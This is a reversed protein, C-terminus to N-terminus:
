RLAVKRRMLLPSFEELCQQAAERLPSLTSPYPKRQVRLALRSYRQSPVNRMWDPLISTFVPFAEQPIPNRPHRKKGPQADRGAPAHRSTPTLLEPPKSKPPTKRGGWKISGLLKSSIPLLRILSVNKGHLGGDRFRFLSLYIPPTRLISDTLFIDKASAM